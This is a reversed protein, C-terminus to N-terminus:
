PATSSIALKHLQNVAKKNRQREKGGYHLPQSIQQQLINTIFRSQIQIKVTTMADLKARLAPAVVTFTLRQVGTKM